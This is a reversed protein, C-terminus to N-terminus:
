MFKLSFFVKIINITDRISHITQSQFLVTFRKWISNGQFKLKEKYNSLYKQPMSLFQSVPVSGKFVSGTMVLVRATKNSEWRDELELINWLVPWLINKTCFACSSLNRLAIFTKRFKHRLFSLTSSSISTSPFPQFANEIVRYQGCHFIFFFSACSSTLEKQANEQM